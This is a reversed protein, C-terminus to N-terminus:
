YNNEEREKEREGGGKREKGVEKLNDFKIIIIFAPDFEAVSFPLV